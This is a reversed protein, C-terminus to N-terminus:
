LLELRFHLGARVSEGSLVASEGSKSWSLCLLDGLRGEAAFEARIERLNGPDLELLRQALDFYCTNNMHGNGDLVEPPVRYDARQEAERRHPAQPMRGEQGTLVASILVGSQAPQLMKRSERDVVAWLGCGRLLLRDERDLVQYHRLYMGHRTDGPWTRVLVREGKEPWRELFLQYRTVVWMIGHALMDEYGWGLGKSQDASAEQLLYFLRQLNLGGEPVQEWREFVGEM